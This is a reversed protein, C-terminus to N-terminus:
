PARANDIAERVTPGSGRREIKFSRDQAVIFIWGDVGGNWFPYNRTREIEDLREADKGLELIAGKIKPWEPDLWVDSTRGLAAVIEAANM